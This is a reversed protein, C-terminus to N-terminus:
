FKLLGRQAALFGECFVDIGVLSRVARPFWWVRLMNGPSSLRGRPKRFIQCKKFNWASIKFDSIKFNWFKLFDCSLYHPRGSNEKLGEIWVGVAPSVRRFPHPSQDTVLFSLDLVQIQFKLIEPDSIKFNWFDRIDHTIPFGALLEQWCEEPTRPLPPSM